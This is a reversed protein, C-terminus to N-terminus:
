AGDNIGAKRSANRKRRKEDKARTAAARAAAQPSIKGTLARQVDPPMAEFAVTKGQMFQRVMRDSAPNKPLKGDTYDQVFQEVKANYASPSPASIPTSGGAYSTSRREAEWKLREGPMQTGDPSFEEKSLFRELSKKEKNTLVGTMVADNQKGADVGILTRGSRQSKVRTAGRRDPGKKRKKLDVKGDPTYMENAKERAQKAKFEKTGPRAELIRIDAERAQRKSAVYKGKEDIPSNRSAGEKALLKKLEAADVTGGKNITVPRAKTPNHAAKIPTGIRFSEVLAADRKNGLPDIQEMHDGGLQEFKGRSLTNTGFADMDDNVDRHKQVKDSRPDEKKGSGRFVDAKSNGHFGKGADDEIIYGDRESWGHGTMDRGVVTTRRSGPAEQPGFPLPAPGYDRRPQAKIPNGKNDVGNKAVDTPNVIKARDMNHNAAQIPVPAGNTKGVSKTFSQKTPPAVMYEKPEAIADTVPKYARKASQHDDFMDWEENTAKVRAKNMDGLIQNRHWQEDALSPGAMDVEPVHRGEESVGDQSIRKAEQSIRTINRSTDAVNKTLSVAVGGAGVAKVTASAASFGDDSKATPASNVAPKYRERMRDVGTKGTMPNVINMRKADRLNKLNARSEGVKYQAKRASGAITERNKYALAGGAVVVAATGVGIAIKKNRRKRQNKAKAAQAKQYGEYRRTTSSQRKRPTAGATPTVYTKGGPAYHRPKGGSNFAPKLKKTGKGGGAPGSTFRGYYDRKVAKGAGGGKRRGGKKRAM